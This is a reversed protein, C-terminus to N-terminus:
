ELEGSVIEDVQPVSVDALAKQLVFGLRELPGVYKKSCEVVGASMLLHPDGQIPRITVKSNPNMSGARPHHMVYIKGDDKVAVPEDVSLDEPECYITEDKYKKDQLLLKCVARGLFVDPIEVVGKAARVRCFFVGEPLNSDVEHLDIHGVTNSKGSHELRFKSVPKEDKM